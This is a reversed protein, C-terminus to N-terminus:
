ATDHEPIPPEPLLPLAPPVPMLSQDLPIPLGAAAMARTLVAQYQLLNTNAQNVITHVKAVEVKNDKAEELVKQTLEKTARTNRVIPVFGTLATIVFAIATLVGASAGIEGALSSSTALVTM